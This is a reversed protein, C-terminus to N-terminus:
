ANNTQEKRIPPRMAIFLMALTVKCMYYVSLASSITSSGAQRDRMVAPVEKIRLNNKHALIIEEPEPYDFSPYHSSMFKIAKRNYARLGSTPDTIKKGTLLHCIIEFFKIGIRRWFTSQYGQNSNMFRSGIVIDAIDDKLPQILEAISNPDHQGDGDFKVAIEMNKNQAYKLGTQVAGGVGLNVPLDIVLAMNTNSAQESTADESGDNIVLIKFDRDIVQSLEQLTGGICSEENYCPVILLKKCIQM